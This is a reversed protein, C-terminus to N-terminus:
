RAPMVLRVAMTPTPTSWVWLTFQRTSTMALMRTLPSRARTWLSVIVKDRDPIGNTIGWGDELEYPGHCPYPFPGAWCVQLEEVPDTDRFIWTDPVPWRRNFHSVMSWFNPDNTSPLPTHTRVPVTWVCVPPQNQFSIPRSLANNARSFSFQITILALMTLIGVCSLSFAHCATHENILPVLYCMAFCCDCVKEDGEEEDDTNVVGAGSALDRMEKRKGDLQEAYRFRATAIRNLVSDFVIGRARVSFVATIRDVFLNVM